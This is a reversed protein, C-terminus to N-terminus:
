FLVRQITGLMSQIDNAMEEKAWGANRSKIARLIDGHIVGVNRLFFENENKSYCQRTLHFRYRSLDDSICKYMRIMYPNKTSNIVTEHFLSDWKNYEERSSADAAEQIRAVIEELKRTEERSITKAATYAAATEIPYRAEYLKLYEEYTMARVTPAKGKRREVLGREVLADIAKKVPSRSIGLESAIQAERIKTDPSLEGSVIDEYLCNYVLEWLVAFPNKRQETEIRNKDM